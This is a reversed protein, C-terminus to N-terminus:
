LEAALEYLRARVDNKVRMEAIHLNIDTNIPTVDVVGKLLKIAELIKEAAEESINKELAIVFGARHESM